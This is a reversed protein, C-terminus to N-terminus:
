STKTLFGDYWLYGMYEPALIIIETSFFTADLFLPQGFFM